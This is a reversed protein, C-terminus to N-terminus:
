NSRSALCRVREETRKDTRRSALSMGWMRLTPTLHPLKSSPPPHTIHGLWLAAAFRRGAPCNSPEPLKNAATAASRANGAATASSPREVHCMPSQDDQQNTQPGHHGAKQNPLNGRQRGVCSPVDRYCEQPQRIVGKARLPCQELECVAQGPIDAKGGSWNLDLTGLAPRMPRVM